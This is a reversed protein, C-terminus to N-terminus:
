TGNSAGSLTRARTPPLEPQLPMPLPMNKPDLWADMIKRAIPAAVRSGHGGHEVIVAVAIVPDDLPAFGVFLSHDRLKRALNQANYVEDEALGFVQATGTKGASTYSTNAFARRATGNSASTVNNMGEIISDWYEPKLGDIVRLSSGTLKQADKQSSFRSKLFTPKSCVGRGALCTTMAALQMPTTLVYGQGIGAIITEGPFWVEGFKRKKWARSPNIGTKEGILDIGSPLGLGFKAYMEHLRDIGTKFALDYFYVDSSQTIAKNMDVWGHGDKRWDRYKRPAKPVTYFPGAFMKEEAIVASSALGALATVPKITSGPPYQGLAMRNFLPRLPDDRLKAYNKVSIGNIFLNTDFNPMSVAALVEGNRPDIAIASGSQGVEFADVIVKQLRTDLSLVLGDGAVPVQEDLTRIYRGKSNIEEERIGTKGHLQNEYFKEVGTKGVHNTGRYNRADLSTLDRENIRGVYGIAHATLAGYPYFRQLRPVVEVGPFRDIELSFVAVEKDSLHYLLPVSQFSPVTRRLKHFKLVEKDSVSLVNGLQLLTNGLNKVRGPIIELNFATQNDALLNGRRDYILGRSPVMPSLRVRNEKALTSYHGYEIVQLKYVRVFLLSTLLFVVLVLFLMRSSFMARERHVDKIVPNRAM